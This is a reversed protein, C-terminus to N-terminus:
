GYKPWDALPKMKDEKKEFGNSASNRSAPEMIVNSTKQADKTCNVCM